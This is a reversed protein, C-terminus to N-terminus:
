TLRHSSSLDILPLANWLRPLRKFFHNRTSNNYSLSHILKIHSSSRTSNHNFSINDLVNFHCSSFKVQRVFFMIDNLEFIMILPLLQIDSLRQKYESRGDGLVFM